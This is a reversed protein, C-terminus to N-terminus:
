RTRSMLAQCHRTRGPCRSVCRVPAVYKPASNLMEKFPSDQTNWYALIDEYSRRGLLLRNGEGMRAGLAQAAGTSFETPYDDAVRVVAPRDGALIAEAAERTMRRLMITM